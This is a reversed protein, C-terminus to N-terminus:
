RDARSSLFRERDGRFEALRERSELGLALAQSRSHQLAADLRGENIAVLVYAVLLAACIIAVGIISADGFGATLPLQTAWGSFYRPVVFVVLLMLVLPLLSAAAAVAVGASPKRHVPPPEPAKRAPAAPRAITM